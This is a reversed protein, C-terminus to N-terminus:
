DWSEREKGLYDAPYLGKGIGRIAVAFSKSKKLIIISNGKPVVLLRDGPKLGLARRMEAPISIRYKSSLTVEAM